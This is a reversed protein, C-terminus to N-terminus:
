VCREAYALHFRGIAEAFADSEPIDEIETVQDFVTFGRARYNGLAAPADLDCTHLWVRRTPERWAQAVAHSLLAGGLGRGVHPPLLGLFKIEANGEAQFELEFYGILPEGSFALYMVTETEAFHRDWDAPTWELRSYWQWPLGVGVFLSFALLSDNAVKRIEARTEYNAAPKFAEPSVMELHTTTVRRKM